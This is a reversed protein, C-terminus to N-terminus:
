KWVLTLVVISFAVISGLIYFMTLRSWYGKTKRDYDPNGNKNPKSNGIMVTAAVGVIFIAFILIYSYSPM